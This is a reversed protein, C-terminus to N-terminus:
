RRPAWGPPASPSTWRALTVRWGNRLINRGTRQDNVYIPAHPDTAEIVAWSERRSIHAHHDAVSSANPFEDGIIIDNDSARGISLSAQNLPFRHLKGNVTIAELFQPVLPGTVPRFPIETPPLPPAEVPAQAEAPIASRDFHYKVIPEEPAETPAPAEALAVEETSVSAEIPAAGEPAPTESPAQAEVQTSVEVSDAARTNRCLGPKPAIQHRTRVLMITLIVVMGALILDGFDGRAV